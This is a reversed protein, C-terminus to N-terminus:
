DLIRTASPRQAVLIRCWTLGGCVADLSFPSSTTNLHLAPVPLGAGERRLVRARTSTSHARASRRRGIVHAHQLTPSPTASTRRTSARHCERAPGSIAPRAPPWSPVSQPRTPSSGAAWGAVKVAARMAMAALQGRMLVLHGLLGLVDEIAMSTREAPRTHQSPYEYVRAKVGSAIRKRERRVEAWRELMLRTDNSLM